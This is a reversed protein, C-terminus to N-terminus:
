AFLSSTNRDQVKQAFFSGHARHDELGRAPRQRSTRHWDSIRSGPFHEHADSRTGYASGIQVNNIALQGIWFKGQNGAVFDDTPNLPKALGTL